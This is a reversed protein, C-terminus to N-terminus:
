PLISRRFELEEAGQPIPIVWTFSDTRELFGRPQVPNGDVLIDSVYPQNNGGPVADSPPFIEDLLSKPFTISLSTDALIQQFSVGITLLEQDAYIVGVDGRPLSYGIEYENTDM